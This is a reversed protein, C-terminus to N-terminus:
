TAAVNGLVICGEACFEQAHRAVNEESAAADGERGQLTLVNKPSFGLDAALWTRWAGAIASPAVLLALQFQRFELL